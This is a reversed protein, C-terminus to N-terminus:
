RAVGEQHIDHIVSGQEDHLIQVAQQAQEPAAEVMFLVEGRRVGEVYSYLDEELKDLGIIAGIIGGVVIWFLTVLAWLIFATELPCNMFICNFIGVPVGYIAGVLLSLLAGITAWKFVGRVKQHGDLRQWV